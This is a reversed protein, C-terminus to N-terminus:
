GKSLADVLYYVRVIGHLERWYFAVGTGIRERKHLDISASLAAAAYPPLVAVCWAHSGTVALLSSSRLYAPLLRHM